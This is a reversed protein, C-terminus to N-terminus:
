TFKTMPVTIEVIKMKTDDNLQIFRLEGLIM